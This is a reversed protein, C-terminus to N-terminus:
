QGSEKKAAAAKANAAEPGLRVQGVLTAGEEMSLRQTTLNGVLEATAGMECKQMATVNGVVKGSMAINDAMVDGRIRANKDVVLNDGTIGGKKLQGDFVLEGKFELSGTIEVNNYITSKGNANIEDNMSSISGTKSLEWTISRLLHIQFRNLKALVKANGQRIAVQMASDGGLKELSEPIRERDSQALRGSANRFIGLVIADEIETIELDQWTRGHLLGEWDIRVKDALNTIFQKFDAGPPQRDRLSSELRRFLEEFSVPEEDGFDIEEGSPIRAEREVALGNAAPGSGAHRTNRALEMFDDLRSPANWAGEGEIDPTSLTATLDDPM